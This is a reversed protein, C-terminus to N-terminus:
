MTPQIDIIHLTRTAKDLSGNVKVQKGEFQKAKERDDLQYTATDTKLVFKKGVKVVTGTFSEQSQAESPSAQAPSAQMQSARAAPQSPTQHAIAAPVLVAVLALVVVASLCTKMEIRWHVLRSTPRERLLRFALAPSDPKSGYAAVFCGITPLKQFQAPCIKV